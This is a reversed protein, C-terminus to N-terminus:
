FCKATLQRVQDNINIEVRRKNFNTQKRSFQFRASCIKGTVVKKSYFTQSIMRDVLPKCVTNKIHSYTTRPCIENVMVPAYTKNPLQITWIYKHEMFVTFFFNNTDAFSQSVSSHANGNQYIDWVDQVLKRTEINITENSIAWVRVFSANQFCNNWLATNNKNSWKVATFNKVFDYINM